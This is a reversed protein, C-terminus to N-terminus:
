LRKRTGRARAREVMGYAGDRELKTVLAARFQLAEGKEREGERRRGAIEDLM